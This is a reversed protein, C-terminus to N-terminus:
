NYGTPCNKIKDCPGNTAPTKCASVYSTSGDSNKKSCLTTEYTSTEDASIFSSAGIVAILLLAPLIGPKLLKRKKM